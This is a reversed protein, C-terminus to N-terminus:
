RIDNLLSKTKATNTTKAIKWLLDFHKRYNDAVEKSKIMIALLTPEWISILIKDGYIQTGVPTIFEKSLVKVEFEPHVIETGEAYIYKNKIKYQKIDRLWQDAFIPMYKRLQGAMGFGVVEKKERIIDKFASKMGKEGRFIEVSVKETVSERIKKLDPLLDQMAEESEKLYNLLNEPDTTKFYMRNDDQFYSVLGMEKLKDLINYINTRHVGSEEAIQTVNAKGLRLLALYVKTESESLGIRRLPKIDM